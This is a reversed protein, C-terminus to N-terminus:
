RFREEWRSLIPETAGVQEGGRALCANRQCAGVALQGGPAADTWRRLVEERAPV